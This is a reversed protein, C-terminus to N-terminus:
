VDLVRKLEYKLSNRGVRFGLDYADWRMSAETARRVLEAIAEQREALTGEYALRGLDENTRYTLADNVAEACNLSYDFAKGHQRKLDDPNM